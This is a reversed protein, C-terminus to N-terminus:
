YRDSLFTAGHRRESGRLSGMPRLLGTSAALSAVLGPQGWLSPGLTRHSQATLESRVYQATGPPLAAEVSAQLFSGRSPKSPCDRSDLITCLYRLSSKVSASATHMTVASAGLTPTPTPASPPEQTHLFSGRAPAVPIEDRAAYEATLQHRGDRTSIEVALSDSKNKLSTYYSQNEGGSKAVINVSARHLTSFPTPISLNPVSLMALYEKSGSQTAISSIKLTEGYGLPSRLAGQLEFGVESGVGAKLYSSMKLFPIGKEKVNLKLQVKLGEPDKSVVHLHSDIADFLNMSLLRQTAEGLREVVQPLTMGTRNVDQLEADFFSLQTRDNGAVTFEVIQTQSQDM